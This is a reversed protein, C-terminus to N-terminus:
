SLERISTTRASFECFEYGSVIFALTSGEVSVIRKRFRRSRGRDSVRTRAVGEHDGACCPRDGRRRGCAPLTASGRRGTSAWRRSVGAVGSSESGRERGSDVPCVSGGTGPRRRLLIGGPFESSRHVIAPAGARGVRDRNARCQCDVPPAPCRKGAWGAGLLDVPRRTRASRGDNCARLVRGLTVVM